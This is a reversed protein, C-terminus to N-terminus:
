VDFTWGTEIDGESSEVTFEVRTKGKDSTFSFDGVSTIRDDQMLADTITNKLRAQILEAPLGILNVTEVGYNWSYIEHWIRETNLIFFITQKVAERGDVFGKIIGSNFDVRYTKTPVKGFSFDSKLRESIDPIM